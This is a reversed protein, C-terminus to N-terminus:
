SDRSLAIYLHDFDRTQGEISDFIGLYPYLDRLHFLQYSIEGGGKQMVNGFVMKHTTWTYILSAIQVEADLM